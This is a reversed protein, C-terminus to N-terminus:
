RIVSTSTTAKVATCPQQLAVHKFLSLRTKSCDEKVREGKKEKKEKVKGGKGKRLEFFDFLSSGTVFIYVAFLM